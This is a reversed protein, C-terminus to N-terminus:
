SCTKVSIMDTRKWSCSVPAPSWGGEGSLLDSRGIGPADRCACPVFGAQKKRSDREVGRPYVM